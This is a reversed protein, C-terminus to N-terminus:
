AGSERIYANAERFAELKSTDADEIYGTKEVLASCIPMSSSRM